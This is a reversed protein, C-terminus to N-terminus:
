PSFTNKCELLSLNSFLSNPYILKPINSNPSKLPVLKTIYLNPSYPSILMSTNFNLWNPSILKSINSNRNTLHAKSLQTIQHSSCFDKIHLFKLGLLELFSTCITYYTRVVCYRLTRWIERIKVANALKPFELWSLDFSHCFFEKSNDRIQTEIETTNVFLCFISM